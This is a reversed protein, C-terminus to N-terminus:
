RVGGMVRFGIRLMRGASRSTLRRGFDPNITVPVDVDGTNPDVSLQRSGDILLLATDLEGVDSDLLNFGEVVLEVQRGGGRLIEFGL